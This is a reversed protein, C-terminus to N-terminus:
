GNADQWGDGFNTIECSAINYSGDATASSIVKGDVLLKCTVHGGGQLQATISYFTPNGLPRTISMPVHGNLSSGAPGYMVNAGGTGTVIYTVTQGAGPKSATGGSHRAGAVAAAIVIIVFLAGVISLTVWLGTRRRRPPRGRPPYYGGPPPGQTHQPPQQPWEPRGQQPPLGYNSM